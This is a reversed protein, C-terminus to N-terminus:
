FYCGLMGMVSNVGVNDDDLGGNSIHHLRLSFFLTEESKNRIETGVGLQPNFNIRLGQGRVQFDTYIIGIGGEIYPKFHPTELFDLYMLAFINMSTVLRTKEDHAAGISGEVKFRLQEPAKHRWVKEYDYIIFGSLMYFDINNTPDYTKGIVVSMGHKDSTYTEKKEGASVAYSNIAIMLVLSITIIIRNKINRKM